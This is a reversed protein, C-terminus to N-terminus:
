ARNAVLLLTFVICLLVYAVHTWNLRVVAPSPAPQPKRARRTDLYDVTALLLLGTGLLGYGAIVIVVLIGILHLALCIM